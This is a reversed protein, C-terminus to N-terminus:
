ETAELPDDARDAPLRGATWVKVRQGKRAARVQVCAASIQYEIGIVHIRDLEELPLAEDEHNTARLPRWHIGLGTDLVKQELGFIVQFPTAIPLHGDSLTAKEEEEATIHFGIIPFEVVPENGNLFDNIATVFFSTPLRDLFKKTPATMSHFSLLARVGPYGWVPGVDSLFLYFGRSLPTRYERATDGQQNAGLTPRPIPAAISHPTADPEGPTDEAAWVRLDERVGVAYRLELAPLGERFAAIEGHGADAFVM